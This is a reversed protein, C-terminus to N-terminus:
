RNSDYKTHHLRAVDLIKDLQETQGWHVPFADIRSTTGTAMVVEVMNWEPAIRIMANPIRKPVYGDQLQGHCYTPEKYTVHYYPGDDEQFVYRSSSFPFPTHDHNRPANQEM